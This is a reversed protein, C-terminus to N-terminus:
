GGAPGSEIRRSGDGHRRGDQLRRGRAFGMGLLAVGLVLVLGCGLGVFVWVLAAIFGHGADHAVVVEAGGQTIRIRYAGDEPVTIRAAGTFTRGGRGITQRSSGPGTVTVRRGATDTVEVRGPLISTEGGPGPTGDDTREFLVYSGEEFTMTRDLPTPHVPATAANLVSRGASVVIGIVSATGGLLAAITLVAGWAVLPRGPRLGGTTGTM